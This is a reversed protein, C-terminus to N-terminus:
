RAKRRQAADVGDRKPPLIPEFYIRQALTPPIAVIVHRARVTIKDSVVTVHSKGHEIKRVPSGLVIHHHGIHHALRISIM